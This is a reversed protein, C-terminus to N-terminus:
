SRLAELLLRVRWYLGTRGARQLEAEELTDIMEMVAGVEEEELDHTEGYWEAFRRPSIWSARIRVKVDAPRVKPLAAFMHGYELFYLLLVGLSLADSWERFNVYAVGIQRSYSSDDETAVVRNLVGQRQARLEPSYQDILELAEGALEQQAADGCVLVGGMLRQPLDTGAIRLELWSIFRM